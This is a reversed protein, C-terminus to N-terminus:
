SVYLYIRFLNSQNKLIHGTLNRNNKRLKHNNILYPNHEAWYKVWKKLRLKEIILTPGDTFALEITLKSM